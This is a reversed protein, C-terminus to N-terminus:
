GNRLLVAGFILLGVGAWCLTTVLACLAVRAFPAMSSTRSIGICAAAGGFGVAGPVAGGLTAVPLLGCLVAFVWGWAPIAAKQGSPPVDRPTEDPRGKPKLYSREVRKTEFDYGCDCRQAEPPNYLGCKRCQM